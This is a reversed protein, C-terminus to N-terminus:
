HIKSKATSIDGALMEHLNPRYDLANMLFRPAFPSMLSYLTLEWADAGFIVLENLQRALIEFDTKAAAEIKQLEEAFEEINTDISSYLSFLKRRYLLDEYEQMEEVTPTSRFPTALGPYRENIVRAVIELYAEEEMCRGIIGSLVTEFDDEDYGDAQPVHCMRAITNFVDMLKSRHTYTALEMNEYWKDFSDEDPETIVEGSETFKVERLKDVLEWYFQQLINQIQSEPRRPGLEKTEKPNWQTPKEVKDAVVVRLWEKDIGADSPVANNRKDNENTMKEVTTETS